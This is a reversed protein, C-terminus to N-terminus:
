GLIPGANFMKFFSQTMFTYVRRALHSRVGVKETHLMGGLFLVGACVGVGRVM